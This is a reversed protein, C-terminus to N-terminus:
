YLADEPQQPPRHQALSRAQEAFANASMLWAKANQFDGNDLWYRVKDLSAQAQAAAAMEAEGGTQAASQQIARLRQTADDLAAGVEYSGTQLVDMTQSLIASTDNAQAIRTQRSQELQQQRAQEEAASQQMASLQEAYAQNQQQLEHNQQQLTTIGSQLQQLQVEMADLRANAEEARDRAETVPEEASAGPVNAQAQGPQAHASSAQAQASAAQAGTTGQALALPSLALMGVVAIGKKMRQFRLMPGPCSM